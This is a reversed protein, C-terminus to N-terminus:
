TLGHRHMTRWLSKRDIGLIRAAETRKGGTVTLAREVHGRIAERLPLLEPCSNHERELIDRPLDDVQITDGQGLVYARQIANSLQRINGPWSYDMLCQVAQSSISKVPMCLLDAIRALLHDALLPIDERRERLAPILLCVVNLRYYLDERFRGEQVARRLDHHSAAVVRVDIPIERTGGVPSVVRQEIVRLLSSQISESMDGIEDLLITGGDAARLFGMTAHRAGTFAGVEHGFLESELLTDNIAACNVGIFPHERRRSHRHLIRAVVEKGTGSEGQLVVNVDCQALRLIQRRLDQILPSNGTLEEATSAPRPMTMM